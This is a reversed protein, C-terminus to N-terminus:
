SSNFPSFLRVRVNSNLIQFGESVWWDAAKPKIEMGKLCKKWSPLKARPSFFTGFRGANSSQSGIDVTDHMGGFKTTCCPQRVTVNKPCERISNHCGVPETGKGKM